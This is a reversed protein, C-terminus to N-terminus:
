DGGRKYFSQLMLIGRISKLDQNLEEALRELEPRDECFAAYKKFAISTSGLAERFQLLMSELELFSLKFQKSRNALDKPLGEEFKIQSTKLLTALKEFQGQLKLLERLSNTIGFISESIKAIENIRSHTAEVFKFLRIKEEQTLIQSSVVVGGPASSTVRNLIQNMTTWLESNSCYKYRDSDSLSAGGDMRISYDKTKDFNTFNYKYFGDGVETMAADTIVLSNDSLDRIRITPSLGTKPAGSETLFCLIIM